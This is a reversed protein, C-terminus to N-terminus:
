KANAGEVAAVIARAGVDCQEPTVRDGYGANAIVRYLAMGCNAYKLAVADPNQAEGVSYWAALVIRAGAEYDNWPVFNAEWGEVDPRQVYAKLAQAGTDIKQQTLPTANM